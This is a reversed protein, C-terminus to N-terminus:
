WGVPNDGSQRRRRPRRMTWWWRTNAGHAGGSTTTEEEAVMSPTDETAMTYEDEEVASATVDVAAGMDGIGAAEGAAVAVEGAATEERAM